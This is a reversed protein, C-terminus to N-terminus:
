PIVDFVLVSPLVTDALISSFVTDALFSPFVTDALLLSASFFVRLIGLSVCVFFIIHRLLLM